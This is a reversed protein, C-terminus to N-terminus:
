YHGLVIEDIDDPGLGADAVADRAAKVILSEVDEAEHKGFPTHSWGVICATMFPEEREAARSRLRRYPCPWAPRRVQYPSAASARGEEGSPESPAALAGPGGVPGRALDFPRNFRRDRLAVILFDTSPHRRARRSLACGDFRVQIM